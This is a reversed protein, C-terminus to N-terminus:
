KIFSTFARTHAPKIRGILSKILSKILDTDALDFTDVV